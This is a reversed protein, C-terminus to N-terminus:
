GALWRVFLPAILATLLANLALAVSAFAGSVADLQFARATGIGHASLGLAFGRARPDAVRLLNFLPTAIVAGLVGTLIVLVAALSPDAGMGQAVGIAVGATASKPALAALTLPPAGLARATLIASGCAVCSGVVLAAAAPALARGVLARHTHLPVALAVTAPGLLMQIPRAGEAYTAYPVGTALLLAALVWISHLVPNALPHRGTARSLGDALAFVGLTTTVWFLPERALFAWLASM